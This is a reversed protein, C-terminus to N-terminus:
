EDDDETVEPQAGTRNSKCTPVPCRIGREDSELAEGCDGCMLTFRVADHDMVIGPCGKELEVTTFDPKTPEPQAPPHAYLAVCDDEPRTWRPHQGLVVKWDGFNMTGDIEINTRYMWAVAEGRQSLLALLQDFAEREAMPGRGDTTFIIAELRNRENTMDM